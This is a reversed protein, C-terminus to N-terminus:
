LKEGSMVLITFSFENELLLYIAGTISYKKYTRHIYREHKDVTEAIARILNPHYVFPVERVVEKGQEEFSFAGREAM